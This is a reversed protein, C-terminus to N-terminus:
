RLDHSIINKACMRARTFRFFVLFAPFFPIPFFVLFPISFSLPQLVKVTMDPELATIANLTLALRATM